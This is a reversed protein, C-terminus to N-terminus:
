ERNQALYFTFIQSDLTTHFHARNRCRSFALCQECFNTLDHIAPNKEEDIRLHMVDAGYM